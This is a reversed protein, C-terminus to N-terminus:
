RMAQTTALNTTNDDIYYTLTVQEQAFGTGTMALSLAATAALLARRQMRITM